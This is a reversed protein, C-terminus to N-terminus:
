EAGIALYIRTKSQKLPEHSVEEAAAVGSKNTAM